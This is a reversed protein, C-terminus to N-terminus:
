SRDVMMRRPRLVGVAESVGGNGKGDSRARQVELKWGHTRGEGGEQSEGEVGKPTPRLALHLHCGYRDHCM